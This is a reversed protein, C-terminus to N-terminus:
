MSTYYFDESFLLKVVKNSLLWVVQAGLLQQPKMDGRASCMCLAQSFDSIHTLKEHQDSISNGM